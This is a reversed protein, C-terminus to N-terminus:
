APRSISPRPGGSNEHALTIDPQRQMPDDAPIPLFVLESGSGTLRLVMEALERM